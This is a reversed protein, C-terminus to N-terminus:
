PLEGEASQWAAPEVSADASTTAGPLYADTVAADSVSGDKVGADQALATSTLLLGALGVVISQSNLSM